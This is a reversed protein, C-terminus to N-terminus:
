HTYYRKEAELQEVLTLNNQSKAVELRRELNKLLSIRHVQRVTDQKNNM